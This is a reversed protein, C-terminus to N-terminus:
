TELLWLLDIKEFILINIVAIYQPPTVLTQVFAKNYWDFKNLSNTLLGQWDICPGM